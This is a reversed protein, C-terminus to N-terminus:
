DELLALGPLAQCLHKSVSQSADPGRPSGLSCGSLQFFGVRTLVAPTPSIGPPPPAAAPFRTRRDMSSEQSAEVVQLQAGLSGSSSGQALGGAPASVAGLAAMQAASGRFLGPTQGRSPARVSHLAGGVRSGRAPLEVSFTEPLYFRMQFCFSRQRCGSPKTNRPLSEAGDVCSPPVACDGGQGWTRALCSSGACGQWHPGRTVAVAGGCGGAIVVRSSTWTALPGWPRQQRGWRGGVRGWQAREGRRVGEM